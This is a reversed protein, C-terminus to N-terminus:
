VTVIAGTNGSSDLVNDEVYAEDDLKCIIGDCGAGEYESFWREAGALREDGSHPAM